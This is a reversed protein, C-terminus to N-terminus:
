RADGLTVVSRREVFTQRSMTVFGAARAYSETISESRALYDAELHAANASVMRIERGLEERTAIHAISFMTFYVYLGSLVFLLFLLVALFRREHPYLYARIGVTPMLVDGFPLRKQLYSLRVNSKRGM